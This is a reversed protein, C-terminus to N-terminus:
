HSLLLLDGDQILGVRKAYAKTGTSGPDLPSSDEVIITNTFTDEPTEVPEDEAVIEATDEAIGPAVEQQFIMGVEPNAPMFIGPANGPDDARWAGEHSVVEGGEYIDVDEGFYCVTGAQTQAFYNISVELLEEDEDIEGDGDTDLWETEEMRVTKINYRGQYFTERGGLVRIQLGIQEGTDEETGIYVWQQGRPLPFFPNDVETSFSNRGPACLSLPLVRSGNGGERGEEGRGEGREKGKGKGNGQNNPAGSVSATLAVAAISLLAVARMKFARISGRVQM